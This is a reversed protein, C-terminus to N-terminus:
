ETKGQLRHQVEALTHFALVLKTQERGVMLHCLNPPIEFLQITL